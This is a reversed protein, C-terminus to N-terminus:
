SREKLWGDLEIKKWKELVKVLYDKTEDPAVKIIDNKITEVTALAIKGKNINKILRNPGWNYGAIVFPFRKELPNIHAFYKNSLLNLYTSGYKINNASEFLFSGDVVESERLVQKVEEGAYRPVIQMLGYAPIHSRAVPNFASEQWMIALILAIPLNYKQAWLLVLPMYKDARRKVHDAVLTFRKSQGNSKSLAFQTSLFKQKSLLESDSSLLGDFLNLNQNVVNWIQEKNALSINNDSHELEIFGDEFNISMRTKFDSSYTVFIKQNAVKIENWIRKIENEHKMWWFVQDEQIKISSVRNKSFVQKSLEKNSDYVRKQADRNSKSLKEFENVDAFLPQSLVFLIILFSTYAMNDKHHQQRVSLNM